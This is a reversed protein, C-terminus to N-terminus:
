NAPIRIEHYGMGGGPRVVEVDLGVITEKEPAYYKLTARGQEDTVVRRTSLRGTPADGEVVESLKLKLPVNAAPSGNVTVTLHVGLTEGFSVDANTWDFSVDAAPHEEIGFGRADAVGSSPHLVERGGPADRIALIDHTGESPATYTTTATGNPGTTVVRDALEGQGEVVHESMSAPDLLLRLRVGSVGRGNKEARVTVPLSEGPEIRDGGGVDVISAKVKDLIRIKTSTDISGDAVTLKARVRDRDVGNDDPARYTITVRGDSGTVAWNERFRGDNDFEGRDSFLHVATKFPQGNRTAAVTVEAREGAQMREPLEEFRVDYEVSSAGSLPAGSAGVADGATLPLLALALVFALLTRM